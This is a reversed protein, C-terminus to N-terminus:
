SILRRKIIGFIDTRVQEKYSICLILSLILKRTLGVFNLPSYALIYIYVYIYIYIYLVTRCLKM